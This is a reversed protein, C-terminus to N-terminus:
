PSEIIIEEVLQWLEAVRPPMLIMWIQSLRRYKVAAEFRYWAVWCTAFYKFILQFLVFYKTKSHTGPL